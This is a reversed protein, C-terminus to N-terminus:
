LCQDVSIHLHHQLQVLEENGNFNVLAKLDQELMLAQGYCHLPRTANQQLQRCILAIYKLHIMKIKQHFIEIGTSTTEELHCRIPLKSIKHIMSQSRHLQMNETRDFTSTLSQISMIITSEVVM